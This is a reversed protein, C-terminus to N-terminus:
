KGSTKRLQQAIGEFLEALQSRDVGDQRLRDLSRAHEDLSRDAQHRANQLDSDLLMLREDTSHLLARLEADVADLETSQRKGQNGLEERLEKTARGIRIDLLERLATDQASLLSEIRAMRNNAQRTQEGFLIERIQAMQQEDASSNGVGGFGLKGTMKGIKKEAM